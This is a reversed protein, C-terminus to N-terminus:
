AIHTHQRMFPMALELMDDSRNFSDIHGADPLVHTDAGLRVMLADNLEMDERDGRYGLVAVRLEEYAPRWGTSGELAAAIARADNHGLAESVAEPDTFGVAACM